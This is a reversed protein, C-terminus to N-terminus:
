KAPQQYNPFAPRPKAPPRPKALEGMLLEVAKELQVDRGARWAKPDFEVEVDPHIGVNEAVWEGTEPDWFGVSPPSVTGGDMLQPWGGLGGVLGGWTRKGVLPGIGDQPFVVAHLRRGIRRYENILMAKPGFIGGIPGPLTRATVRPATTSCRGACTTSSTTRSRAAPGNFREDIVAGQKDVQAFYYRNFNTYGGLRPTRCICM